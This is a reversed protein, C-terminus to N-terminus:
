TRSSNVPSDFARTVLCRLLTEVTWEAADPQARSYCRSIKQEIEAGGRSSASSGVSVLSPSAEQGVPCSGAPSSSSRPVGNLISSKPEGTVRLGHPAGVRWCTDSGPAALVGRRAFLSGGGVLPLSRESSGSTSTSTGSGAGDGVEGAVSSSTIDLPPHAARPPKAATAVASLVHVGVASTHLPSGAEEPAM